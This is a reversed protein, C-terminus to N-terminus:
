ANYALYSAKLIAFAVAETIVQPTLKKKGNL